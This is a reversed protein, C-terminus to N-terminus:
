DIMSRAKDATKIDLANEQSVLQSNEYENSKKAFSHEREAEEVCQSSSCLCKGPSIWM